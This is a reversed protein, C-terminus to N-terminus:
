KLPILLKDGVEIHNPDRIQPNADLLTQLTMGNRQAIVSLCDGSRVIYAKFRPQIGQGGAVTNLDNLNM